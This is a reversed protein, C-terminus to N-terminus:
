AVILTISSIARTEPTPWTSSKPAACYAIRTQTRGSVSAFSCIVTVSTIFAIL